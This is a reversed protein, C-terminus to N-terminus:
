LMGFKTEQQCFALTGLAIGSGGLFNIALRTLSTKWFRKSDFTNLSSFTKVTNTSKQGTPETIRRTPSLLKTDHFNGQSRGQLIINKSWRNGHM